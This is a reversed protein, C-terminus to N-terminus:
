PQSRLWELCQALDFRPADGLMVTPLGRKRLIDVHGVSCSLARALGNRDLLAPRGDNAALAETVVDRLLARLADTEILAVGAMPSLILQRTETQWCFGGLM